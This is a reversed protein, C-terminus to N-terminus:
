TLAQWFSAEDDILAGEGAHRVYTLSTCTVQWAELRARHLAREASERFDYVVSNLRGTRDRLHVLLTSATEVVSEVRLGQFIEFHGRAM